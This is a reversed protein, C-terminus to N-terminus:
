QEILQQNRFLHYFLPLLTMSFYISAQREFLSEFQMSVLFVVVVGWFFASTNPLLRLWGLYFVFIGIIGIWGYKVGFELLQNHPGVRNEKYLLTNKKEYMEQLIQDQAAAGVGLPNEILVAVSMKYAEIRMAMSKHNIEDGKGWSNIDEMSNAVKNKLSSSFSYGIVALSTLGLMGFLLIKYANHQIVYIVLTIFSGAYFALLGTRSSLIHFSLLCIIGFVWLLINMKKDVKDGVLQGVIGLITIANIIGFHIHHMNPIPISKSQLLMQDFYSKDSLYGAVAIVNICAVIAAIVIFYYSLKQRSAREFFYSHGQLIFVLGLMLLFKASTTKEGLHFVFDVFLILLLLVSSLLIMRNYRPFSKPLYFLVALGSLATVVSVVFPSFWLAAFGLLSFSLFVTTVTSQKGSDPM